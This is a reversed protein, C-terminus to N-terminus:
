DILIVFLVGKRGREVLLGVTDGGMETDNMRGLDVGRFNNEFVNDTTM